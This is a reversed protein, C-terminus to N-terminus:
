QVKYLLIVHQPSILSKGSRKKAILLLLQVERTQVEMPKKVLAAPRKIYSFSKVTM